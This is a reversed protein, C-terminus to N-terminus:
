AYKKAVALMLFTGIGKEFKKIWADTWKGVAEEIDTVLEHVQDWTLDAHTDM